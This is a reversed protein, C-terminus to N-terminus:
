SRRVHQSSHHQLPGTLSHHIYEQNSNESSYRWLIRQIDGDQPFTLIQRYMKTIDAIFWVQHTRFRLAISYLDEQIAHGVQLIDNLSLGNSSKAGRDFVVRTITTSSTEKFVPHRPIFYYTQRREQSYVPEVHGLDECEKMFKHNQIEFEPDKDLKCENAHLWRQATLRSTQLQNPEM